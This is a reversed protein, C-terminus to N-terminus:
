KKEAMMRKADKEIKELGVLAQLLQEVESYPFKPHASGRICNIAAQLTQTPIKYM